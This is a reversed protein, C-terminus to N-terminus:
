LCTSLLSSFSDISVAVVRKVHLSNSEAHIQLRLGRFNFCIRRNFLVYSPGYIRRIVCRFVHYLTRGATDTTTNYTISGPQITQASATQPIQPSSLYQNQALPSAGGGIVPTPALTSSATSYNSSPYQSAATYASAATPYQSAVPPAGYSLPPPGGAGPLPPAYSSSVPSHGVAAQYQASPYQNAGPAGPYLSM